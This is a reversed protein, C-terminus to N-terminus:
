KDARWFINNFDRKKRLRKNRGPALAYSNRRINEKNCKPSCCKHNYYKPEFSEGCVMCLLTQGSM